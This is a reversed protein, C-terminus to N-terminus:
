TRKIATTASANTERWNSWDARVDEAMARAAKRLWEAGRKPLDKAIDAVAAATGLHVNATERGMARLLRTEDPLATAAPLDVKDADPALRRVVWAGEKATVVQMSPDRSRVATAFLKEYPPFAAAPKTGAAWDWASPVMAKAERAVLGGHWDALTFFRPRGLSGMGATRPALPAAKGLWPTVTEIARAASAPAATGAALGRRYDEQMKRWYAAPDRDAVLPGLWRNRDDIVFPLAEGRRGADIGDAYGGLLAECGRRESVSLLGEAAALLISTSLRVLDNTYPVECAEDFDNIGWALRADVDRWTGFNEVHLDGVGLVQPADLLGKCVKPWRKAWRYFTARLFPFATRGAMKTHKAQLDAQVLQVHSGLWSEYDATASQISM